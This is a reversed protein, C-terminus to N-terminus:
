RDRFLEAIEEVHEPRLPESSTHQEQWLGVDRIKPKPSHSGLWDRSPRCETCSAVRGILSRELSLREAKRAVELLAFSFYGQIYDTVRREVEAQKELDVMSGYRDRNARSTLDLNWHELFPDDDRQLLARGINKRFISRDKNPKLFHEHIRNRLQEQGTHTGIRVIREAGHGHEGEEFLIYIGNTPVSEPDFPFRHRRARHALEHLRECAESM